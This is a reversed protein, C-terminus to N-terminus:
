RQKPPTTSNRCGAGPQGSQGSCSSTAISVTPQLKLRVRGVHGIAILLLIAIGPAMWARGRSQQQDLGSSSFIAIALFTVLRDAVSDAGAGATREPRLWCTGPFARSCMAAFGNAQRSVSVARLARSADRTWAPALAFGLAPFLALSAAPGARCVANLWAFTSADVLFHMDLGFVVGPVFYGLGFWWGAM